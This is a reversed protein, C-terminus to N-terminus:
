HFSYFLLYVYVYFLSLGFVSDEFSKIMLITKYIYVNIIMYIYLICTVLWIMWVSDEVGPELHQRLHHEYLRGPQSSAAPTHHGSHQLRHHHQAEFM